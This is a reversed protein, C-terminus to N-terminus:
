KYAPQGAAHQHEAIAAIRQQTLERVTGTIKQVDSASGIHSSAGAEMARKGIDGTGGYVVVPLERFQRTSKIIRVVDAGSIVHQDASAIVISPTALRLWFFGDVPGPALIVEYGASKLGMRLDNVKSADPEMILVHNPGPREARLRALTTAVFFEIDYLTAEDPDYYECGIWAGDSGEASACVIAQLDSIDSGDPLAFSLSVRDDKPLIHSVAVRCGGASMDVLEGDMARGNDLIVTCPAHLHVREHKRVRVCSVSEPWRVRVFSFHSGTGLDEVISNCGCADGDALFRLVCPDGVRLNATNSGHRPIDLLLYAGRQWGRMFTRVRGEEGQVRLSHLVVARGVHFFSEVEHEAM